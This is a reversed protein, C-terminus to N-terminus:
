LDIGGLGDPFIALINIREDWTVKLFGSKQPEVTIFEDSFGIRWEGEIFQSITFQRGESNWFDQCRPSNELGEDIKVIQFDESGHPVARFELRRTVREKQM